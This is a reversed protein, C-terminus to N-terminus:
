IDKNVCCSRFRPHVFNILNLHLLSFIIAGTM